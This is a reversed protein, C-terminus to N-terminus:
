EEHRPTDDSVIPDQVTETLETTVMATETTTGQALAPLEHRLGKAINNDVVIEDHYDDHLKRLHLEGYERKEGTQIIHYYGQVVMDKDIEAVTSTCVWEYIDDLKLTEGRSAAM